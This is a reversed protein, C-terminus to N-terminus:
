PLLGAEVARWLVEALVDLGSSTDLRKQSTKGTQAHSEGGAFLPLPRRGLRLLREDYFARPAKDRLLRALMAMNAMRTPQMAAGLCSFDLE